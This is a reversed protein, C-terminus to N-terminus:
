RLGGYGLTRKKRAVAIDDDREKWWPSEGDPDDSAFPRSMCALRTEDPSHDHAYKTDIDDQKNKDAPAAPLYRIPAACHDFWMIAPFEKRKTPKGNDDVILRPLMESPRRAILRQRIQNWGAVRQNDGRHWPVGMAIMTEAISPGFAGRVGSKAWCAPDLPGTLRSCRNDHDYEDMDESECDLIRQALQEATHKRVYLNRYCIMNDDPDVAWWSVSSHAAYGYDGSRFRYWSRPIRFPRIVHIERDFDDAFMSGVNVNWDGNLLAERIHKPKARLEAEYDAGLSPNDRLLAPIFMRERTVIEGSSVPVTERLIVRGHPAKDYFRKRVWELGPGVPNTALRIRLQPVLVPDSTRLRTCIFQYVDEDFDCVEDFIVLTFEAGQHNLHDNAGELHAFQVTYGCSFTFTSKNENWKGSPDIAKYLALAKQITQILRPMEKRFFIAWGKSRKIERRTWREHEGRLQM